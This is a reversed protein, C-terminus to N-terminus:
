SPGGHQELWAGLLVLVWVRFTLSADGAMFREGYQQVVAPSLGGTRRWRDATLYRKVLAHEHNILFDRLPFDFGHKPADWISPPVYRALLARLIRKPQGPLYRFDTCLHRIYRDTAADCFPFRVTLHSVQMAQSLRDGPMADLLASYRAFHAQRPFRGFTRYFHSDAFSVPEGCLAEVEPRTFGSWRIMMDAPHEFDTIRAYGALGPLLRLLATVQRRLAPPLLSAYGVALRVHRPPMMGLAEDAGTGDLVADFRGRCHEFALLTIPTAPDAAPQEAGARLREFASLCEGHDFRLVEHRLGLHQAIRRAVPSEDFHPADFGVTLATLDARHQRGLACLLASDVGGSLFAAPRLAGELRRQVAGDLLVGLQDVAAAFDAITPEVDHGPPAPHSELGRASWCLRWGAQVAVVDEFITQPAAIDGFRLYEHLGARAVRRAVGPLQMLRNLDTGFAVQGRQGHYLYLNCLGSPDRYLLLRDADRIALAFVGDLRSWLDDAWRRWGALLVQALSTSPGLGLERRLEAANHIEGHHLVGCTGQM